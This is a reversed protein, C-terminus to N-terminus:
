QHDSEIDLVYGDDEISDNSSEIAEGNEDFTNDETNDSEIPEVSQLYEIYQRIEEPTKGEYESENATLILYKGDITIAKYNASDHERYYDYAAKTDSEQEFLYYEKLGTITDDQYYYIAYIQTPRTLDSDFSIEDSNIPLVYKTNDSTFLSNNISPKQMVIVAIIIAIAVAAIACVGVTLIKKNNNTM